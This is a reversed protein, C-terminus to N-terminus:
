LLNKHAFLAEAMLVLDLPQTSASVHPVLHHSRLARVVGGQPFLKNVQQSNALISAFLEGLPEPAIVLVSSADSGLAGAVDKFNNAFHTAASSLPEHLWAPGPHQHGPATDVLSLGSRAAHLSVGAHSAITRLLTHAGLPVTARAVVQNGSISFIEAVEGTVVCLVRRM